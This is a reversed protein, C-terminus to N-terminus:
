QATVLENERHRNKLRLTLPKPPIRKFKKAM